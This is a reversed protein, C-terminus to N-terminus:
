GKRGSGPHSPAPEPDPIITMRVSGEFAKLTVGWQGIALQRATAFHEETPTRGGALHWAHAFIAPSLSACVLAIIEPARKEDPLEFKINM